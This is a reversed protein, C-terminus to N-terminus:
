GQRLPLPFSPPLDPPFTDGKLLMAAVASATSKTDYDRRAVAMWYGDVTDQLTSSSEVVRKLLQAYKKGFLTALEGWM